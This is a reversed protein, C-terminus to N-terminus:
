AFHKGEKYTLSGFKTGHSHWIPEPDVNFTLWASDEDKGFGTARATELGFDVFKMPENESSEKWGMQLYEKAHIDNKMDLEFGLM